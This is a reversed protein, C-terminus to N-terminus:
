LEEPPAAGMPGDRPPSKAPPKGVRLGMACLSRVPLFGTSLDLEVAERFGRHFARGEDHSGLEAESASLVLGAWWRSRAGEEEAGVEGDWLLRTWGRVCVGGGAGLEEGGVGGAWGGGGSEAGGGGGGAGRM